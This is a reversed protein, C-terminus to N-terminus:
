VHSQIMLKLKECIYGENAKWQAHAEPGVINTLGLVISVPIKFKQAVFAYAYAELNEIDHHKELSLRKKETKSIEQPCYVRSETFGPSVPISIDKMKEVSYAHESYSNSSVQSACVIDGIRYKDQNIIGATGLCYIKEPKHDELFHTLGFTAAVPGIGAALYAM